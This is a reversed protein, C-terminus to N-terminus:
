GAVKRLIELDDLGDRTPEPESRALAEVLGARRAPVDDFLAHAVLAGLLGARLRPDRVNRLHFLVRNRFGVREREERTRSERLTASGEHHCRAEPVHLIRLGRRWARYGLEVDEWFFPAYGEAYGGEALFARRSTLFCCGVPYLTPWRGTVVRERLEIFGGEWVGVKGGEDGCAALPSLIAPVVAFAEPEADLAERLRRVADPELTVDDNLVLLRDGQAADVGANVAPGYGGNTARTVLRVGAPLRGVGGGADDVVVVEGEEGSAALAALVTPLHRRLREEGRFTPIVASIM